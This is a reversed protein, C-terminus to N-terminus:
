LTEVLYHVALITGVIGGENRKREHVVILAKSLQQPEPKLLGYNHLPKFNM